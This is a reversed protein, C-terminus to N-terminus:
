GDIDMSDESNKDEKEKEKEVVVKQVIVQKYGGKKTKLQANEERLKKNEELLDLLSGAMQDPTPPNIADKPYGTIDFLGDRVQLRYEEISAFTALGAADDVYLQDQLSAAIAAPTPLLICNFSYAVEDEDVDEKGISEKFRKAVVNYTYSTPTVKKILHEGKATRLTNVLTTITSSTDGISNFYEKITRKKKFSSLKMALQEVPVIPTWMPWRKEMFEHMIKESPSARAEILNHYNGFRIPIAKLDPDDSRERFLWTGPISVSSKCFAVLLQHMPSLSGTTKMAEELELPINNGLKFPDDPSIKRKVLYNYMWAKFGRYSNEKIADLVRTFYKIKEPKSKFIMSNWSEIIVFRRQQDEATKIPNLDNTLLFGGITNQQNIPEKNKAHIDLYEGGILNKAKGLTDSKSKIGKKKQFTNEEFLFVCKRRLEGNFTGGLVRNLDDSIYSYPQFAKMYATFFSSKGTGQKGTSVIMTAMSVEPNLYKCSMWDLLYNATDKRGSCIVTIFHEHIIHASDDKERQCEEHAQYLTNKDWNLGSFTNLINNKKFDQCYPITIPFFTEGNFIKRFPSSVYLSWGDSSTKKGKAGIYHINYKLAPSLEQSRVESVAVRYKSTLGHRSTKMDVVYRKKIYWGGGTVYALRGNLWYVWYQVDKEYKIIEFAKKRCEEACFYIEKDMPDFEIKAYELYQPDIEKEVENLIRSNQNNTRNIKVVTKHNSDERWDINPCTVLFLWKDMDLSQEDTAVHELLKNVDYGKTHDGTYEKKTKPDIARDLPMFEGCLRAVACRDPITKVPLGKNYVGVLRLRRHLGGHNDELKYCGYSRLHGTGLVNYDILEEDLKKCVPHSDKAIAKELQHRFVALWSNLSKKTRIIFPFVLQFGEKNEEPTNDSRSAFCYLPRYKPKIDFTAALAKTIVKVYNDVHTKVDKTTALYTGKQDIDFVLAHKDERNWKSNWTLHSDPFSIKKRRLYIAQSILEALKPISVDPHEFDIYVASKTGEDTHFFYFMRGNSGKQAKFEKGAKILDRMGNNLMSVLGVNKNAKPQEEEQEQEEESSDEDSGSSVSGSPTTSKVEIASLDDDSSTPKKQGSQSVTSSTGTAASGSSAKM